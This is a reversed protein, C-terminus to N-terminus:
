DQIRQIFRKETTDVKLKDGETVFLPVQIILGNSLTAPKTGGQATDGKVGPVTEKVEFIMTLPLNVSIPNQEFHKIDYSEGEILFPAIDELNDGPIFFQDYDDEKMFNYNDDEKFLYQAKFYGVDAPQIKDNGQFTKAIQNGTKLNKLTTKLVGGGRAQKSHIFKTVLYPENEIVITHGVRIEGISYM